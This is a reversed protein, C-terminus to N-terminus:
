DEMVFPVPEGPFYRLALVLIEWDFHPWDYKWKLWILNELTLEPTNVKAHWAPSLAVLLALYDRRGRSGEAMHHAEVQWANSAWCIKHLDHFMECVRPDRVEALKPWFLKLEGLKARVDALTMGRSDRYDLKRGANLQRALKNSRRRPPKGPKLGTKRKIYGSRQM